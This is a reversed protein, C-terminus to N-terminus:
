LYVKNTIKPRLKLHLLNLLARNISERENTEIDPM